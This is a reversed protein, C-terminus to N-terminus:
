EKLKSANNKGASAPNMTTSKNYRRTREEKWFLEANLSFTYIWDRIVYLFYGWFPTIVIYGSCIIYINIACTVVSRLINDTAIVKALDNFNSTLQGWCFYVSVITSSFDIFIDSINWGLGTTLDDRYHCQQAEADWVGYGVPFDLAM